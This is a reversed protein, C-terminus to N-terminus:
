RHYASIAYTTTFWVVMRDHDCHDSPTCKNKHWFHGQIICNNKKIKASLEFVNLFGFDDDDDDDEDVGDVTDKGVNATGCWRLDDVSFGSTLSFTLFVPSFDNNSDSDSDMAFLSIMVPLLTDCWLFDDTSETDAIVCDGCSLESYSSLSYTLNKPYYIWTQSFDWLM